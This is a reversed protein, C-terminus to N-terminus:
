NGDNRDAAHIEQVPPQERKPHANQRPDHAALNEQELGLPQPAEVKDHQQVEDRQKHITGM